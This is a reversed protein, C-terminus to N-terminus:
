CFITWQHVFDVVLDADVRATSASISVYDIPAWDCETEPNVKRTVYKADNIASQKSRPRTTGDVSRMM